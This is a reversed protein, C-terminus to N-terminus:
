APRRRAVRADAIFERILDASDRVASARISRRLRLIEPLERALRAVAVVFARAVAPHRLAVVPLVATRFALLLVFSSLDLAKLAFRLHNRQQNVLRPFNISPLRARLAPDKAVHLHEDMSAGWKHYLRARPVFVTPWGRRWARWCLDVDEMDLFFKEDWGGVDRFLERRVMLSGACGWPIPVIEESPVYSLKLPPRPIILRSFLERPSSIPELITRLHITSEGSWDYHMPDSAFAGPRATLADALERVCEPEFRMDNNVFFLYRGATIEAGRNYAAPL